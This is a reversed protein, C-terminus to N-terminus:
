GDLVCKARGYIARIKNKRMKDSGPRGVGIKKKADLWLVTKGAGCSEPVNALGNGTM